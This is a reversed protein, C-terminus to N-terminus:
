GWWGGNHLWAQGLKCSAVAQLVDLDLTRPPMAWVHKYGAQRLACATLLAGHNHDHRSRFVRVSPLLLSVLLDANITVHVLVRVRWLLPLPRDGGSAALGQAFAHYARGDQSLDLALDRLRRLKGLAVGLEYGMEWGGNLWARLKHLRLHTLTGAVAELAPAVRSRVEEVGGWEDVFRVNLKTLAPLGGSAWLEWLGMVGADPPNARKYDSIELHTLRAFATGPPFLPEVESLRPLVLAQLERCASLAALLEAWQVRVQAHDGTWPQARAWEHSITLHLAKLTPSCCRLAQALHVLGDGVDYFDRPLLVELRQLAAGSAGLMGPLPRLQPYRCHKQDIRLTKLSPPIFRPWQVANDGRGDGFTWVELELTALAPLQRVLGLAALQLGLQAPDCRRLFTMRLEHM